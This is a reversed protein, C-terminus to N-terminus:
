VENLKKFFYNVQQKVSRKGRRTGFHPESIILEHDLSERINSNNKDDHSNLRAIRNEPDITSHNTELIILNTLLRDLDLIKNQNLDLVKFKNPANYTITLIKNSKLDLDFHL